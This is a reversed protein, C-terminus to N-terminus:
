KEPESVVEVGDHKLLSQISELYEASPDKFQIGIGAPLEPKKPEDKLNVWAVTARCTVTKGVDPLTFSLILQDDVSFQTETKLFLGGSSMDASFGYLLMKQSPGYYVRLEAKMRIRPSETTPTKSNKEM